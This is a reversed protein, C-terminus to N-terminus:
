GDGTKGDIRAGARVSGTGLSTSPTSPGARLSTSPFRPIEDSNGPQCSEGSVHQPLAKAPLAQIAECMKAATQYRQSPAKATAKLIVAETEASISPRLARASPMPESVLKLITASPNDARFPPHGVLMEFLVVGTAYIDARHDVDKGMAQEPSMYDLTGVIGTRTMRPEAVIRAIGFDTLKVRDSPLLIINSPKVDRHIVQANHAYDLADCVQAAIGRARAPELAGGEAILQELTQGELYEMVLFSVDDQEGADFVTVIGPHALRGASRAERRFRQRFEPDRTLDPRLAKLAVTRQINPDLAQYVIGMAGQGLERVIEYRGICRQDDQSETRRTRDVARGVIDLFEGLDFQSKAIFDFVNYRKFLDRVQTTSIDPLGTVVICPIHPHSRSLYNVIRQGAEVTADESQLQSPLGMDVTVLDVREQQNRVRELVRRAEDYTAAVVVQYEAELTERILSQWYPDDEVVLVRGRHEM